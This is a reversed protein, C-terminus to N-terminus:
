AKPHLRLAVTISKHLDRLLTKHIYTHLILTHVIRKTNLLLLKIKLHGRNNSCHCFLIYFFLITFIFMTMQLSFFLKIVLFPFFTEM